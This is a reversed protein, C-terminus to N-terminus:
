PLIYRLNVFQMYVHANRPAGPAVYWPARNVYSGQTILQFSGYSPNKWLTTVSSFSGEQVARNNTNASGQFGYGVLGGTASSPDVSWARGYYAGGYYASLVTSKTAQWEFGGLGGGSHILQATFPAKTSGLQAAAFDPGLGGLYRGGGDSWYSDAILHLRKFIELNINASIAGGEKDETVSTQRTVIAPTAVRIGHLLGAVEFHWQRQGIHADDAIKAIVDPHLNPTATGGGANTGSNLDVQTTSFLTPFTVGGGTYQEPNELSLGIATDKSPHYVARLVAQRAYTLGVQYNTDVHFTNFIDSPFPSLGRRNPTLLSWDQGGMVDWKGFSANIFALRLRLSAPSTTVYANSALYGNFDAEVFAQLEANKIKEEARLSFRSSQASFRTESLLGAATNNFPISAFTTGNGSGVDTTRYITTFDVWGGPTFQANGIRVSLPAADTANQKLEGNQATQPAATAIPTATSQVPPAAATTSPASGSVASAGQALTQGLQQQLADLQKQQNAIQQRQAELQAGQEGILRQTQELLGRIESLTLPATDSAPQAAAAQAHMGPTFTLALFVPVVALLVQSLIASHWRRVFPRM